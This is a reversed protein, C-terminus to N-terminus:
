DKSFVDGITYIVFGFAAFIIANLWFSGTVLTFLGTFNIFLPVVWGITGFLLINFVVQEEDEKKLTLHAVIAGIYSVLLFAWTVGKGMFNTILTFLESLEEVSEEIITLETEEVFVPTPEQTPIVPPPAAVSTPVPTVTPIITLFINKETDGTITVTDTYDYHLSETVDITYTTPAIGTIEYYGSENSTTSGGAGSLTITANNVPGFENTITGSIDYFLIWGSFEGSYAGSILKLDGSDNFVFPASDTGVDGLESTVSSDLIWTSGSWYWGTFTGYTDGSILKWTGGDNFITPQSSAGVTGLGNVISINLIWSSGSWYFGNFVGDQEGSILKLTGGDNFVAPTTHRGLDGLGNVIDSDYVWGTGSRYWGLFAGESRGTILKWTGGDNFVTPKTYTEAHSLGTVVGSSPNWTSGVWVYGTYDGAYNGSILKWNSGDLFVTPVSMSGVEGLGSVISPDSVWTDASATSTFVFTLILFILILKINM